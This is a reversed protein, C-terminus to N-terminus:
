SGRSQRGYIFDRTSIQKLKKTVGLRELSPHFYSSESGSDFLAAVTVLDNGRKITILSTLPAPDGISGRNQPRISTHQPALIPVNLPLRASAGLRGLRGAPKADYFAAGSFTSPIPEAQHTAPSSCLKKHTKCTACFETSGTEQLYPPCMHITPSAAKKRICGLSFGNTKLIPRHSMNM